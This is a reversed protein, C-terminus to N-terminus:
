KLKGKTDLFLAFALLAHSTKERKIYLILM